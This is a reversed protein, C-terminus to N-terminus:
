FTIITKQHNIKQLFPDCDLVSAIPKLTYCDLFQKALFELFVPPPRAEELVSVRNKLANYPSDSTRGNARNQFLRKAVKHWAEFYDAACPTKSLQKEKNKGHNPHM